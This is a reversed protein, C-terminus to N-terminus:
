EEESFTVTLGATKNESDTGFQVGWKGKSAQIMTSNEVSYTFGITWDKDELKKVYKDSANTEVEEFELSWTKGEGSITMTGVETLRGYEFKPLDDPLDTPWTKTPKLVEEGEVGKQMQEIGEKIKNGIDTGEGEKIVGQETIGPIKEIGKKIMKKGAVKWFIVGGIIILVIIVIVVLLAVLCGKGKKKPEAEGSSAPQSSLNIEQKEEAM